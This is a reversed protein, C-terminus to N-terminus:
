AEKRWYTPISEYGDLNTCNYYCGEGDPNGEYKNEESNDGRTWLEIPKGTLNTCNSFTRYFSEVNQCNDFLKEPITTLSECNSFTYEFYIANQCNVFLKEPIAELMYCDEFTFNFYQANKCNAFLEEPISTLNDCSRFTNDFVIANPCNAFLEKPITTLSTCGWFTGYFGIANNCYKFLDSPIETLSTCAQLKFQLSNVWSEEESEYNQLNAFSNKSPSAIKRLNTCNTLNVEELGTEGWQEIELINKRTFNVKAGISKVSGSITVTKEVNKETYTHELGDPLSTAAVSINNNVSAIKISEKNNETNAITTNGGETITNDGWDVVCDEEKSIPLIVYGDKGTSIRIKIPVGGESKIDGEYIESVQIKNGKETTLIRDLIDKEKESEEFSGYKLLITELEEETIDEGLKDMQLETIDLRAQEIVNAIDTQTRAEVARQIIGNEGSLASITIGALILLVIATIVLAVLTIGKSGKVKKM